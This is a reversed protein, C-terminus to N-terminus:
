IELTDCFAADRLDIHIAGMDNATHLAEPALLPVDSLL